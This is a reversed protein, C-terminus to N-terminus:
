HSTASEATEELPTTALIELGVSALLEQWHASVESNDPQMTRLRALTAVSDYWIGSNGLSIAEQLLEDPAPSSSIPHEGDPQARQIWGSVLPNSPHLQGGCKLTFFWQYNKGVELAQADQPLQIAMLGAEGSIAVNMRYHLQKNEGKISFMAEKEGTKPLYILITPRDLRTIGSHSNPLLPTVTEQTSDSISSAQGCLSSSRSAGGTTQRPSESAPPTFNVAIASGLGTLMTGTALTLSGFVRIVNQHKM